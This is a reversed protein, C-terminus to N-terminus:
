QEAIFPDPEMVAASALHIYKAERRRLMESAEEDTLRNDMNSTCSHLSFHGSDPGMAAAEHEGEQRNYLTSSIAASSLSWPINSSIKDLTIEKEEEKNGYSFELFPHHAAASEFWIDESNSPCDGRHQISKRSLWYEYYFRDQTIVPEVLTSLYSGRAWWFNFWQWGPGGTSMGITKIEDLHNFLQVIQRWAFIIDQFLILEHATRGGKYYSSHTVGKSHFYLFLDKPYRCALMWLLHIGPFEYLNQDHTYLRTTDPNLNCTNIYNVSWILEEEAESSFVLHLRARELLGTSKLDEMQKRVIYRSDGGKIMHSFYVISIEVDKGLTATTEESNNKDKNVHHLIPLDFMECCRSALLEEQPIPNPHLIAFGRRRARLLRSLVPTKQVFDIMLIAYSLLTLSAAGLIAKRRILM